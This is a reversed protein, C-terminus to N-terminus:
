YLANKFGLRRMMWPKSGSPQIRWSYPRMLPNQNGKMLLLYHLSPVHMDPVRITCFSRRLVLEPTMQEVASEEAVVELTQQTDAVFDSPSKRWLEVEVRVQKTTKSGQEVDPEETTTKSTEQTDAVVDSPTKGQLELEVGVQKTTKSDQKM